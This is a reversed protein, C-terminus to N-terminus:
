SFLIPWDEALLPATPNSDDVDFLMMAAVRRVTLLDVTVERSGGDMEAVATVLHNVKEDDLHGFDCLLNLFRAARGTM